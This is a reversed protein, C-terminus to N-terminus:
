LFGSSRASLLGSVVLLLLATVAAVLLVRWAERGPARVKDRTTGKQLKSGAIEVTGILVAWLGLMVLVLQGGLTGTLTDGTHVAAAMYSGTAFLVLASLRSIRRLSQAIHRLPAANLEGRRALPLVGFAVFLVTGTWLGAFVSHLVYSTAEVLEM